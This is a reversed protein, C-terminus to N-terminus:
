WLSKKVYAFGCFSRRLSIYLHDLCVLDFEASRPILPLIGASMLSQGLARTKSILPNMERPNFFIFLYFHEMGMSIFPILFCEVHELWEPGEELVVRLEKKERHIAM